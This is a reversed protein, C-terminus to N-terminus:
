IGVEGNELDEVEGNELDEVEGDELDEVEGDRSGKGGERDSDGVNKSFWDVSTRFLRDLQANKLTELSRNFAKESQFESASPSHRGM